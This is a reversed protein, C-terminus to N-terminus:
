SKKRVRWILKVEAAPDIDIQHLRRIPGWYSRWDPMGDVAVTAERCAVNCEYTVELPVNVEPIWFGLRDPLEEFTWREEGVLADGDMRLTVSRRGPVDDVPKWWDFDEYHTFQTTTWTLEGARATVDAPRRLPLYRKRGLFLNPVGCALPCDVPQELVDRAIPFAAYDSTYGDVVPLQLDWHENRFCWAGIGRSDFEIWEDRFPFLEAPDSTCAIDTEAQALTRATAAISELADVSYELLRGPGRYWHTMGRRHRAIADDAWSHECFRDFANAVLGAVRQASGKCGHALLIAGLEMVSTIAMESSRGWAVSWGDPRATALLLREHAALVNRRTEPPIEELLPEAAILAH